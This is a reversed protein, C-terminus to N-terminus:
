KDEEIRIGAVRGLRKHSRELFLKNPPTEGQSIEGNTLQRMLFKGRRWFIVGNGLEWAINEEEEALTEPQDVGLKLVGDVIINPRDAPATPKIFELDKGVFWTKKDKWGFIFIAGEHDRCLAVSGDPLRDITKGDYSRNAKAKAPGFLEDFAKLVDTYSSM